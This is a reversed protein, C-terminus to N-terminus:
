YFELGMKMCVRKISRELLVDAEDQTMQIFGQSPYFVQPATNSHPEHGDELYFVLNDREDEGTVWSSHMDDMENGDPYVELILQNALSNVDTKIINIDKFQYTRNYAISEPNTYVTDIINENLKIKIQKSLVDIFDKKLETFYLELIEDVEDM